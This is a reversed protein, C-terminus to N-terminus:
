IYDTIDLGRATIAFQESNQTTVGLAGSPPLVLNLPVISTYVPYIGPPKPNPEVLIERYLTWIGGSENSTVFLRIMGSTIGNPDIGKITVQTILTGYNQSGWINTPPASILTTITGSGDLATNSSNITVSEVHGFYKTAM